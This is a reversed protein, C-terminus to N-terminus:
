RPTGKKHAKWAFLSRSIQEKRRPSMLVYVTMSIGAAVKGSCAWYFMGKSNYVQGGLRSKLILLPWDHKQGAQVKPTRNGPDWLFSGEGELFGACWALDATSM